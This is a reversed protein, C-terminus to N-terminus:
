KKRKMRLAFAALALAATGYTSPEPVASPESYLFDDMVVLDGGQTELGGLVQNGSAIRVSGVRQDFLVGLFSFTENGSAAAAFYKGM